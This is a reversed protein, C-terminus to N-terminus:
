PQIPTFGQCRQLRCAIDQGMGDALQKRSCRWHLLGQLHACEPCIVRDDAERDRRQLQAALREAETANIGRNQFLTVRQMFLSVEIRNMAGSHPWCWLDPDHDPAADNAPGLSLAQPSPHGTTHQVPWEPPEIMGTSKECLGPPPAVFGVSGGACVGQLPKTPKTAGPDLTQVIKLRELWTM